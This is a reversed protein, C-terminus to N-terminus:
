DSTNAIKAKQQQPHRPRLCWSLEYLFSNSDEDDSDDEPDEYLIKPEQKTATMKKRSALRNVFDQFNNGVSIYLPHDSTEHYEWYSVSITLAKSVKLEALAAMVGQSATIKRLMHDRIGDYDGAVHEHLELKLTHLDCDRKILYQITAAFRAAAVEEYYSAVVIQLKLHRVRNLHIDAIKSVIGNSLSTTQCQYLFTDEGYLIPFAESYITRCTRLIASELSTAETYLYWPNESRHLQIWSSHCLLYRYIQLRLEPPLSLFSSATM